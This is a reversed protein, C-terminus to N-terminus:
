KKEKRKSKVELVECGKLKTLKMPGCHLKTGDPQGRCETDDTPEIQVICAHSILMEGHVRDSAPPRAACGALLLSSATIKLWRV